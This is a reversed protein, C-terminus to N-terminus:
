LFYLNAYYDIIMYINLYGFSSTDILVIINGKRFGRMQAVGIKKIVHSDFEFWSINKMRQSATIVTIKMGRTAM